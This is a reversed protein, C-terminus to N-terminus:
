GLNANGCEFDGCVYVLDVNKNREVTRRQLMAFLPYGCVRKDQALPGNKRGSERYNINRERLGRNTHAARHVRARDRDSGHARQQIDRDVQCGTVGLFIEAGSFRFDRLFVRFRGASTKSRPSASTERPTSVAVIALSGNTLSSSKMVPASAMASPAKAPPQSKTDDYGIDGDVLTRLEKRLVFTFEANDHLLRFVFDSCDVHREACPVRAARPNTVVEPPPKASM